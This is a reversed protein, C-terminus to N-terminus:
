DAGVINVGDPVPEPEEFRFEPELPLGPGADQVSPFIPRRPKMAMEYVAEDQGIMPDNVQPIREPPPLLNRDDGRIFEAQRDRRNGSWTRDM